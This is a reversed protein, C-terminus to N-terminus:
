KRETATGQSHRVLRFELALQQGVMGFWPHTVQERRKRIGIKAAEVTRPEAPVQLYQTGHVVIAGDLDPRFGFSVSGPDDFDDAVVGELEERCEAGQQHNASQRDQFPLDERRLRRVGRSRCM